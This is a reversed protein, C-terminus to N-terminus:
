SLGIDKWSEPNKFLFNYQGKPRSNPHVNPKPARIIKYTTKLYKQGKISALSSQRNRLTNQSPRKTMLFLNTNESEM